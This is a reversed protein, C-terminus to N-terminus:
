AKIKEPATYPETRVWLFDFLASILMTVYRDRIMIIIYDKNEDFSLICATNGGIRFGDMNRIEPPMLHIEKLLEPDSKMIPAFADNGAFDVIQRISVGAAIRRGAFDNVWAIHSPDHFYPYNLRYFEKILRDGSVAAELTQDMTQRVASLGREVTIYTTRMSTADKTLMGIVTELDHGSSLLEHKKRDYINRLVSPSAASYTTGRRRPTSILLQKDVLSDVARYCSSKDMTLIRAIDAATKDRNTLFGKYIAIENETLGIAVLVAPM